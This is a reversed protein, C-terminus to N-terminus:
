SNKATKKNSNQEKHPKKFCKKIFVIIMIIIRDCKALKKIFKLYWKRVGKVAKKLYPILMDILKSFTLRFIIFGILVGILIFARIQGNTTLLMLCFAAFASIIWFLIDELAVTLVSRRFIMRDLRFIDYVASLGCGLLVSWLFATSQTINNIEWM